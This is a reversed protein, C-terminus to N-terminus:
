KSVFIGEFLIDATKKQIIFYSFPRDAKFIIPKAEVEMSVCKNRTHVVTVAAAKTGIENVEIKCKQVIQSVYASKNIQSFNTDTLSTLGLKVLTDLLPINSEHEFKPIIPFVKRKSMYQIYGKLKTSDMFISNNMLCIVMSFDSKYDLSIMEVTDNKLYYIMHPKKYNMFDMLQRNSNDNNNNSDLYFYDPKTLKPDFEHKWKDKFYITNVIIMISNAELNLDINSIMKKTKKSVWTNIEKNIGKKFDLSLIEAFDENDKLYKQEVHKTVDGDDNLWLSNAILAKTDSFRLMSLSMYMKIVKPDNVLGFIVSLQKQAEPDAGAYLMYLACKLSFPSYILNQQKNHFVKEFVTDATFNSSSKTTTTIKKGM